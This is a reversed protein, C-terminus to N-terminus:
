GRIFQMNDPESWAPGITTPFGSHLLQNGPAKEMPVGIGTQFSVDPEDLLVSRGSVTQIFSEKVPDNM